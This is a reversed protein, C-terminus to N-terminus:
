GRVRRKAAGEGPPLPVLQKQGEGRPLSKKRIDPSPADRQKRMSSPPRKGLTFVTFFTRARSPWMMGRVSNCVFRGRGGGGGRLGVLGVGGAALGVRCVRVSAVGPAGVLLRAVPRGAVVFAGVVVPGGPRALFRARWWGVGGFGCARCPGAGRRFFSRRGRCGRCGVGRVLGARLRLGGRRRARGGRPRAVGRLAVGVGCGVASHPYRDRHRLASTVSVSTQRGNSHPRRSREATWRRRGGDM